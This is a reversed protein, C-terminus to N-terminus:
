LLEVSALRPEFCCGPRMSVIRVGSARQPGIKLFTALISTSGGLGLSGIHADNVRRTIELEIENQISYRGYVQAELMLSTAEFHSRGVGIFLTAPTCGLLSVSDKAWFVIEDIVAELSHKHFVRYTKARIDPGGGFMLIHVRIVDEDILKVSLPAPVVASSDEYLGQSQDIRNSDDGRVAMPRGPLERLGLEVGFHISALMEGSLQRNKGVEIFLHPIGTDDCLPSSHQEAVIANELISELVWKSRPNEERSIADRYSQKKGETFTSSAKVLADRIDLAIRDKESMSM